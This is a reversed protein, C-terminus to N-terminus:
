GDLNTLRVMIHPVNRTPAFNSRCVSVILNWIHEPMDSDSGEGSLGPDVMVVVDSWDGPTGGRHWTFKPNDSNLWAQFDPNKFVEPANIVIASCLEIKM